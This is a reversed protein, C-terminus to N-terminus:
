SAPTVPAVSDLLQLDGGVLTGAAEYAFGAAGAEDGPAGVALRATDQGVLDPGADFVELVFPHEEQGNVTLVGRVNRLQEHGDPREYIIAGVSELSLSGAPANPDLWRVFGAAEQPADAVLTAFLVFTVDGGATRVIGGGTIGELCCACRDGACDCPECRVGVTGGEQKTQAAGRSLDLGFGAMGAIGARLLGRRPLIASLQRALDDFRRANM